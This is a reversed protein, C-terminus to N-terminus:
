LRGIYASYEAPSINEEIQEKENRRLAVYIDRYEKGYLDVAIESNAFNDVSESWDSTLKKLTAGDPSDMAKPLPTMNEIGILIGGLIGSIALYPNVDAGSIRHEIRASDNGLDPLRISANRNDISWDLSCPAFSNPRFRRYSNLHPAYIAQLERMTNVLGGVASKLGISLVPSGSFINEENDNLMSVHVHLGNGPFNVYPKAMFTAEKGHDKAINRVLRKFFVATDAADLINRTHKFNIEFQGPGFEAVIADTPLGLTSSAARVDHLFDKNHDLIELDYNQAKLDKSPVTPPDSPNERKDFLYFELECAIVPHLGCGQLRGWITNLIQRSSLPSITGEKSVMEVLVQAVTNNKWTVPKLTNPVTVVRADPDGSIIGYGTEAVDEGFINPVYTSLPLRVGGSALKEIQDTPHWKGRIIGNIDCLMLEIHDPNGYDGIYKDFERIFNM